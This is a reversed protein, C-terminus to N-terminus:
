RWDADTIRMGEDRIKAIIEAKIAPDTPIGKTM